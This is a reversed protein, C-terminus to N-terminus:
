RKRLAAAVREVVVAAAAGAFAGLAKVEFDHVRGHRGPVLEQGAELLGAVAVLGLLWMLRHRPYGLMLLASVLAFAAFREKNPGFPTEPRYAIDSLTVFAVYALTLWFLVRASRRLAGLPTRAQASM